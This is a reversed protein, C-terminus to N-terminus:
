PMAIIRRGEIKFHILKTLELGNLLETIDKYRSYTGGFYQDKINGRYEVDVDYWRSVEKMIQEINAHRFVFSGNKWAIAEATKVKNVAIQTSGVNAVGQQGPVLKVSTNKNSLMVSGALLTTTTYAEDDYAAVNFHTGLVQVTVDKTKVRFPMKENHAVEFYAEGKLEVLREKGTFSTPYTLSSVSNLWVRTGDTLTIKYQGGRPISITNMMAPAATPTGASADYVIEGGKLKKVVANGATALTGNKASDLPIQTGNALTLVAINRGPKIIVAPAKAVVVQAPQKNIFLIGISVGILLCAAAIWLWQLNIVKAPKAFLSKNIRQYVRNKIEREEASLRPQADQMHLNDRYEFLLRQEEPTCNGALFKEYLTSYEDPSMMVPFYYIPLRNTQYLSYLQRAWCM